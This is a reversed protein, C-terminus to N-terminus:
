KARGILRCEGTYIPHLFPPPSVGENLKPEDRALYNSARTEILISNEESALIIPPSGDM